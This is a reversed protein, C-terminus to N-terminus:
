DPTYRALGNVTSFWINGEDDQFISIVHYTGRNPCPNYNQWHTGDFRSVGYSCYAGFWMNGKNDKLMSIIQDGIIGDKMTFTRWNKGDYRSTGGSTGFWMNGQDDQAIAHVYNDALGDETTFHRWDTGDYRFVGWNTGVWINNEGDQFIAEVQPGTEEGLLHFTTWVTGDYRTVGYFRMGLRGLGLETAFWMNGQNDALMATVIPGPLEGNTNDPTFNRWEKETYEYAGSETGFWLNGQRDRASNLIMIQASSNDSADQPFDTYKEWHLGDFRTIGKGCSTVWLVGQKDQIVSTTCNDALGNDATFTTWGTKNESLPAIRSFPQSNIPPPNPAPSVSPSPNTSPPVLCGLSAIILTGILIASIFISYKM